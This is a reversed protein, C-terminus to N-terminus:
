GCWDKHLHPSKELVGLTPVPQWPFWSQSKLIPGKLEVARVEPSPSLPQLKLEIVLPWHNLRDSRCLSVEMFNKKLVLNLSNGPQHVHPCPIYPSPM